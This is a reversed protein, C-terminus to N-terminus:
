TLLYDHPRPDPPLVSLGLKESVNIEVTAAIALLPLTNEGPRFPTALEDGLAGLGFFTYAVIAGLIPTWLGAVPALGFPLLLCFLYVTRDLLLAYAYPLPTFRIREAGALVTGLGTVQDELEQAMADSIQRSAVAAAISRSMLMLIAEPGNRAALAGEEPVFRAVDPGMAEGRVHHALAYAFAIALRALGTNGQGMHAVALRAVSRCHVVMDSLLKRGEWWREYSASNRFGSFISLAIGILSFPLPSIDPFSFRGSLDLWTLVASLLTIFVLQPWIAPLISGRLTFLVEWPRPPDRVIM